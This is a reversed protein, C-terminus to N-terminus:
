LKECDNTKEKRPHTKEHECRIPVPPSDHERRVQFPSPIGFRVHLFPDFAFHDQECDAPTSDSSNKGQTTNCPEGSPEPIDHEPSRHLRRTYWHGTEIRIKQHLFPLHLFSCSPPVLLHRGPTSGYASVFIIPVSGWEICCLQMPSPHWEYWCQGAFRLHVRRCRLRGLFVSRSSLGDM